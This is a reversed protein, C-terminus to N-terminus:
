LLYAAMRAAPAPLLADPTTKDCDAKAAVSSLGVCASAPPLFYAKCGLMVPKACSNLEPLAATCSLTPGSTTGSVRWCYKPESRALYGSGGLSKECLSWCDTHCDDAASPEVTPQPPRKPSTAMPLLLLESNEHMEKAPLLTNKDPSVANCYWHLVSPAM